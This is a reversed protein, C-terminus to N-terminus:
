SFAYVFANSVGDYCMVIIRLRDDQKMMVLRLLGLPNHHRMMLFFFCLVGVNRKSRKSADPSTHWGSRRKWPQQLMFLSLNVQVSSRGAM